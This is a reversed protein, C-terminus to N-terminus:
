EQGQVQYKDLLARVEPTHFIVDGDHKLVLPAGYKEFASKLYRAV